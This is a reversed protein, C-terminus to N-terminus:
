NECTVRLYQYIMEKEESTIKAPKEMKDMIIRWEGENYNKPLYLYHCSSCKNLYLKRGEILLGLTTENRIADDETPIRLTAQCSNILLLASVLLISTNNKFFM